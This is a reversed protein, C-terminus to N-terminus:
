QGDRRIEALESDACSRGMNIKAILDILREEVEQTDSCLARGDLSASPKGFDPGLDHLCQSNGNHLYQDLYPEIAKGKRLALCEYLKEAPAGLYYGSLSALMGLSDPTNMGDFLSLQSTVYKMHDSYATKAQPKRNEVFVALDSVIALKLLKAPSSEVSTSLTAATPTAQPTPAIEEPHYHYSWSRAWGSSTGVLLVLWTAALLRLCSSVRTMANARLRSM